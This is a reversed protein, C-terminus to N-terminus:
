ARARDLPTEDEDAIIQKLVFIRNARNRARVEDAEIDTVFRSQGGINSESM